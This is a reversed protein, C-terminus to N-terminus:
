SAADGRGAAARLRAPEDTILGAAGRALFAKGEAVDNVTWVLVQKGAAVLDELAPGLAVDRVLAVFELDAWADADAPDPEFATIAGAPRKALRAYESALQPDFSTALVRDRARAADVVRLVESPLRDANVADAKIEVDVLTRPFAELVESLLPVRQAAFAADFWSGADLGRLQALELDEVAADGAVTRGLVGDHIVVVEGDRTLRADLEIAPAGADVAARFSAM